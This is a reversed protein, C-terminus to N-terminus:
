QYKFDTWHIIKRTFDSNFWWFFQEVSDFGDNQALMKMQDLGYGDEENFDWYWPMVSEKTDGIHVVPLGDTWVIRIYQVETCVITPAFQLRDKTRNNIVPHIKMGVKWRNHPDERITHLKPRDDWDNIGEWQPYGKAMQCIGDRSHWGSGFFKYRDGDSPNIGAWIKEPFYNRQGGMHQPWKTSFGLTM